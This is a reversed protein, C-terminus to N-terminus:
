ARAYGIKDGCVLEMMTYKNNASSKKCMKEKGVWRKIESHDTNDNQQHVNKHKFAKKLFLRVVKLHRALCSIHHRAKTKQHHPTCFPDACIITRSSTSAPSRVPLSRFFIAIKRNVSLRQVVRSRPVMQVVVHTVM